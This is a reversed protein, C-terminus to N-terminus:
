YLYKKPSKPSDEGKIKLDTNDPVFESGLNNRTQKTIQSMTSKQSEMGEKYPIRQSSQSIFYFSLLSADEFLSM